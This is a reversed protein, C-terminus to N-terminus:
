DKHRCTFAAKNTELFREPVRHEIEYMITDANLGTANTGVAVGLIAVNFFKSSGFPKCLEDADVVVCKCKKNLYEIM